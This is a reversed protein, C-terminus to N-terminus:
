FNKLALVLFALRVVQLTKVESIRIDLQEFPTHTYLEVLGCGGKRSFILGEGM